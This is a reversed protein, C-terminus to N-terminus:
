TAKELPYELLLSRVAEELGDGYHTVINATATGGYCCLRLCIKDVKEDLSDTPKCFMLNRRVLEKLDSM